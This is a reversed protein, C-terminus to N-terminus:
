VHRSETFTKLEDLFQTPFSHLVTEPVRYVKCLEVAVADAKPCEDLLISREGFFENVHVTEVTQGEKVMSVSGSQVLFMYREATKHGTEIITEGSKYELHHSCTVL